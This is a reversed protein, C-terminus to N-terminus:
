SLPVISFVAKLHVHFMSSSITPDASCLQGVSRAFFCKKFYELRLKAVKDFGDFSNRLIATTQRKRVKDKNSVNVRHVSSTLATPSNACVTTVKRSRIKAFGDRM